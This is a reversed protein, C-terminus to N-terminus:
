RSGCIIASSYRSVCRPLRKTRRPLPCGRMRPVIWHATDGPKELVAIFLLDFYGSWVNFKKNKNPHGRGTSRLWQVRTPRCIKNESTFTIGGNAQHALM